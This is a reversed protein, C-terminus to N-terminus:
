PRAMLREHLAAPAVAEGLLRAAAEAGEDLREEMEVLIAADPGAAVMRARELMEWAADPDGVAALALAALVQAGLDEPRQRAGLSLEVVAEDLRGQEHLALGALVNAWGDADDARSAREFDDVALSFNGSLALAVGRETRAEADDPDLAVAVNLERLADELMGERALYAGYMCRAFALDPAQLAAARLAPEADPDDFRAVGTGATALINPDEPDLALCRKFREYAVGELGMEHEVVGLWCFVMPDESGDAALERLLVAAEQWEADEAHRLARALGPDETM